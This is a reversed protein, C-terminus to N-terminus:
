YCEKFVLTIARDASLSNMLGDTNRFSIVIIGKNVCNFNNIRSNYLIIM